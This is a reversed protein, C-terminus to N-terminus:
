DSKSLAEIEVKPAKKSYIEPSSKEERLQRPSCKFSERIAKNFRQLDGIGVRYAIEKIPTTSNILLRCAEGMRIARVHELPTMGLERKFLRSLHSPNLGCANAIDELAIKESINAKIFEEALQVHHNEAIEAANEGIRWLLTWVISYLHSRTAPMRDLGQRFQTDWFTLESSLDSVTPMICPVVAEPNPRFSCWFEADVQSSTKDIRCKSGPATIIAAGGRFAYNQGDVSYIGDHAILAFQWWDPSQLWSVSERDLGFGTFSGFEPIADLSMRHFKM